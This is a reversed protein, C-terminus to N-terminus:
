QFKQNFDDIGKDWKPSWSNIIEDVNRGSQLEEPWSGSDYDPILIGPNMRRVGDKLMIAFTLAAEEDRIREEYLDVWVSDRDKYLTPCTTYFDYVAMIDSMDKTVSPCDPVAMIYPNQISRYGSASPGSPFCVFGYQLEPSHERFTEFGEAEEGIYMATRGEYFEKKEWGFDNLPNPAPVIYGERYLEETFAFAEKVKDDESNNILLGNESNKAIISTDNALLATNALTGAAVSLAYVDIQDDNNTDCTLRSCLMEFEDWNWKGEKQLNYPLNPSVNFQKFLETNFFVGIGASPAGAGLSVWYQDPAFGYMGGNITMIQKVQANWKLDDWDISGCNKVDALLGSRLFAAIQRSEFTIIQGEPKNNMISLAVSELYMNDTGAVPNKRNIKFGNNREAESLYDLFDEDYASEPRTWDEGSWWDVITIEKGGLNFSVKTDEPGWESFACLLEGKDTPTGEYARLSKLSMKCCAGATNPIFHNIAAPLDDRKNVYVTIEYFVTGVSKWTSRDATGKFCAAIEEPGVHSPLVKREGFGSMSKVARASVSIGNYNQFVRSGDTKAFLYKQAADIFAGYYLNTWWGSECEPSTGAYYAEYLSDGYRFRVFAHKKDESLVLGQMIVNRVSIGYDRELMEVFSSEFEDRLERDNEYLVRATQVDLGEGLHFVKRALVEHDPKSYCSVTLVDLKFGLEGLMLEDYFDAASPFISFVTEDASTFDMYINTQVDTWKVQGITKGNLYDEIEKESVWAPLRNFSFSVNARQYGLFLNSEQIRSLMLESLGDRFKEALYDTELRDPYVFYAQYPQDNVYFTGRYGPFETQFGKFEYDTKDLGYYQKLSWELAEEGAKMEEKTQKEEQRERYMRPIRTLLYCLTPILVVLLFILLCGGPGRGAKKEKMNPFIKGDPTYRELPDPRDFFGNEKVNNNNEESM